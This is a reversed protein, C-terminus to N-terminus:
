VGSGLLYTSAMLGFSALLIAIYAPKSWRWIKIGDFNGFPIMNFMAIWANLSLGILGVAQLFGGPFLLALGLFVLAMVLNSGPGAASIKGYERKTLSGSIFVAGPAFFIMGLFSLLLTFMLMKTDSRFEAECGYKHAAIKHALEHFLFATGATALSIILMIAFNLNINFGFTAITYAWGIVFLSKLLDRIEAKSFEIRKSYRHM